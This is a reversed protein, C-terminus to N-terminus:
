RICVLRINCSIFSLILGICPSKVFLLEYELTSIM